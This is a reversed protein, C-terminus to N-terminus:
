PSLTEGQIKESRQVYLRATCTHSRESTSCQGANQSRHEEALGMKRDLREKERAFRVPRTGNM